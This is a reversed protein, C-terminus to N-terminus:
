PVLIKYGGKTKSLESVEELNEAIRKPLIAQKRRRSVLYKVKQDISLILHDYFKPAIEIEEDTKTNKIRLVYVNEANYKRIRKEGNLRIFIVSGNPAKHDIRGVGDETLVLKERPSITLRGIKTNPNEVWASLKIVKGSKEKLRETIVKLPNM